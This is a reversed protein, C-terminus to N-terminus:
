DWRYPCGESPCLPTCVRDACQGGPCDSAGTCKKACHTGGFLVHGRKCARRCTGKAGCRFGPDGGPMTCLESDDCEVRPPWRDCLGGVCKDGACEKDTACRKSCYALNEPEPALGAPCPNGCAGDDGCRIGPEGGSM